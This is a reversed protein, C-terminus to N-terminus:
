METFYITKYKYTFIDIHRYLLTFHLVSFYLLYFLTCYLLTFKIWLKRLINSITGQIMGLSELFNWSFGNMRKGAIKSVSMSLFWCPRNCWGRRECSTIILLWLGFWHKGLGTVCIHTLLGRLTGNLRWSVLCGHCCLKSWSHHITSHDSFPKGTNANILGQSTLPFSSLPYHNFFFLLLLLLLLFICYM